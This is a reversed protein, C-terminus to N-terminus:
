PFRYYCPPGPRFSWTNRARRDSIEKRTAVMTPDNIEIETQAKSLVPSITNVVALIQDRITSPTGPTLSRSSM